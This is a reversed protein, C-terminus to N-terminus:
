WLGIFVFVQSGPLLHDSSCLFNLFIRENITIPFLLLNQVATKSWLWDLSACHLPLWCFVCYQYFAQLKQDYECSVYVIPLCNIFSNTILMKKEVKIKSELTCTYTQQRPISCSASTQRVYSGMMWTSFMTDM